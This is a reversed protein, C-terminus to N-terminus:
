YTGIVLDLANTLLVDTATVSAAQACLAVGVFHPQDPTVSAFATGPLATLTVSPNGLGCLLTGSATPVNAAELSIILVDLVADPAFAGHDVIPDWTTGIVPGVTQGPLLANPNPPTGLRAAETGAVAVLRRQGFIELEGTVLPATDDSGSWVVLMEGSPHLVVAPDLAFHNGTDTSGMDSIAFGPEGLLAETGADIWQGFLEYDDVEGGAPDAPWVVVFAQNTASYASATTRGTPAGPGSAGHLAFPAGLTGDLAVRRAHIADSEVEQGRWAVLFREGHPDYAASPYKRLGDVGSLVIDDVGIESGDAGLRQGFAQQLTGSSDFEGHEWVVLYGDAGAAAAAVVNPDQVPGGYGILADDAGLEGGLGDLRQAYVGRDSGGGADKGGWVALYEDLVANYVVDPRSATGFPDEDEGGMRSIRFDDAGVESRTAADVRQGYIEEGLDDEDIGHWVVLFEGLVPNYAVAPRSGDHANDGDVGMESLRLRTGLPQGDADLFQAYVENENNVLAGTDDDSHWVVLYQDRDPDYAVEPERADFAGDGDPGMSSIRFDNSGLELTQAAPAAGAALFFPLLYSAAHSAQM